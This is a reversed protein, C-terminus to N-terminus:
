TITPLITITGTFLTAVTGDQLTARCEHGYEGSFGTTNASSLTITFIGTGTVSIGSAQTKNLVETGAQQLTWEITASTFDILANTDDDRSTVTITKTEGAFMTYNNVEAM